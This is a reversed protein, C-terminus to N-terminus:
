GIRKIVAQRIIKREKNNLGIGVELAIVILMSGAITIIPNITQTLQLYHYGAYLLACAIALMGAPLFASHLIRFISIEPMYIKLVWLRIILAIIALLATVIFVTQPAMGHRLLIYSIPLYRICFDRQRWDEAY